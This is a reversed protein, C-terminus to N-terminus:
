DKYVIERDQDCAIPALLINKILLPYDYASPSKEPNTDM